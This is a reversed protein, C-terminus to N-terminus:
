YGPTYTYRKVEAVAAEGGTGTERMLFEVAEEFSM